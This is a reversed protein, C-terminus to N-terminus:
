IVTNRSYQLMKLNTFFFSLTTLYTYSSTLFRYDPLVREYYISGLKVTLRCATFFTEANLSLALCHLPLKLFLQQITQAVKLFCSFLFWSIFWSFIRTFCTEWSQCQSTSNPSCYRQALLSDLPYSNGSFMNRSKYVHVIQRWKPM